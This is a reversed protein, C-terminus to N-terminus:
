EMLGMNLTITLNECLAMLEYAKLLHRIMTCFVFVILVRMKNVPTKVFLIGILYILFFLEYDMERKM